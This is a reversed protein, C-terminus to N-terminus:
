EAQHKGEDYPFDRRNCWVLKKNVPDFENEKTDMHKNYVAAPSTMIYRDCNVIDLLYRVDNSAYALNDFIIDFAKELSEPHTREIIIRKVKDGLDDVSLGRTAITVQYGKSLLLNM